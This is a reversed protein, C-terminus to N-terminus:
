DIVHGGVVKMNQNTAMSTDVGVTNKDSTTLQLEPAKTTKM